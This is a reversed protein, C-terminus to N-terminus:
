ANILTTTTAQYCCSRVEVLQKLNAMERRVPAEDLLSVATNYTERTDKYWHITTLGVWRRTSRQHPSPAPPHLHLRTPFILM